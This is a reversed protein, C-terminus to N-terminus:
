TPCRLVVGWKLSSLVLDIEIKSEPRLGPLPHNQWKVALLVFMEEWCHLKLAWIQRDKSAFNEKKSEGGMLSCRVGLFIADWNSELVM